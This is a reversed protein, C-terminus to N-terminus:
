PAKERKSKFISVGKILLFLPFFKPYIKYNGIQILNNLISVAIKKQNGARYSFGGGDDLLFVGFNEVPKHRFDM